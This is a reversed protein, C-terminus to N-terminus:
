YCCENGCSNSDVGRYYAEDDITDLLEELKNRMWQEDSFRLPMEAGAEEVIDMIRAIEYEFM